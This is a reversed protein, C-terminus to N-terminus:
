AQRQRGSGVLLNGAPDVVGTAHLADAKARGRGLNGPIVADRTPDPVQVVAPHLQQDLPWGPFHAAEEVRDPGTPLLVDLLFLHLLPGDAVFVLLKLDYFAASCRNRRRPCSSRRRGITV